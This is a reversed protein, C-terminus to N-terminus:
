MVAACGVRDSNVALACESSTLHSIFVNHLQKCNGTIGVGHQVDMSTLMHKMLHEFCMFIVLPDNTVEHVDLLAHYIQLQAVKEAGM